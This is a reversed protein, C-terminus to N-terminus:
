PGAVRRELDLCLLRDESRLYLRKRALVPAVWCPYHLQPVQFSLALLVALPVCGLRRALHRALDSVQWDFGLGPEQPFGVGEM